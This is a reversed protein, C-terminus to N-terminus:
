QISSPRKHYLLGLSPVTFGPEFHEDETWRPDDTADFRWEPWDALCDRMRGLRYALYQNFSRIRICRRSDLYWEDFLGDLFQEIEEPAPYSGFSRTLALALPWSLTHYRNSAKAFAKPSRKLSPLETWFEPRERWFDRLDIALRLEEPRMGAILEREMSVRCQSWWHREFVDTLLDIGEAEWGYRLGLEIAVQEARQRRTLRGNAIVENCIDERTPLEDFEFDPGEEYLDWPDLLDEKNPNGIEKLLDDEELWEELMELESESSDIDLFVDDEHAELEDREHISSLSDEATASTARSLPLEVPTQILDQTPETTREISFPTFAGPLKPLDIPGTFSSDIQQTLVLPKQQEKTWHNERVGTVEDPLTQIMLQSDNASPALSKLETGPHKDARPALKLEPIASETTPNSEVVPIEDDLTFYFRHQEVEKAQREIYDYDSSDLSGIQAADQALADADLTEKLLAAQKILELAEDQQHQALRVRALELVLIPSKQEELAETLLDAAAQQLGRSLLCRAQAIIREETRRM